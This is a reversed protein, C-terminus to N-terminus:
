IALIKNRKIRNYLSPLVLFISAKVHCISWKFHFWYFKAYYVWAKVKTCFSKSNNYLNTFAAFLWDFAISCNAHNSILYNLLKQKACIDNMLKKENLTFSASNGREVYYYLGEATYVIKQANDLIDPVIFLDEAYTMNSPFRLDKFLSKKYLKNMCINLDFQCSLNQMNVNKGSFIQMGTNKYTVTRGELIRTRGCIVLDAKNDVMLTYLKEYMLPSIYDDADVFAIYNGTAKDLGLNRASCVGGNEKKIYIIRSDKQEWEKCLKDCGDPSGDNILIIELNSYTQDAISQLCKNLYAEVNYIPIIVSIKDNM